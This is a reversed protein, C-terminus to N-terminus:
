PTEASPEARALRRRRDLGPFLRMWLAVVVLTSCGGFVVAPVTGMLTAMLGAWFQGLQNSTGTFLANVASVRGRMADPTDLQILTSRIVVSVMDAAGLVMLAALSLALLQSTGFVVTAAGFIAVCVFMIRGVHDNLPFRALYASALVAGAAPAARLLGLGEPGTALIDRAYIPLLATVGGVLTAFLDLSIAGLIVPNSRIFAFGALISALTPPEHPGALPRRRIALIVAGAVLFSAASTAYVISPGALYFAGGLAPGVIVAIKKTTNSWAVARSLMHDAVLGPLMARLAPSQFTTATGIAFVVAYTVSSTLWGARSGLALVIAASCQVLQCVLAVRRRDYRDAVHGAPLSCVIQAGFHALGILGLDLASGTLDYIQWGIAVVMMQYALVTAIEASWFRTFAGNGAASAQM